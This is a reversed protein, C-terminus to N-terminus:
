IYTIISETDVKDKASSASLVADDVAIYISKSHNELFGTELLVSWVDDKVAALLVKVGISEYDKFIQKLTKVGVVDVFIIGTCDLIVTHVDTKDMDGSGNAAAKLSNSNDVTSLHDPSVTVELSGNGNQMVHTAASQCFAELSDYKKIRKRIKEPDVGTADYVLRLFIAANAYYLPSNYGIVRIGSDLQTKTYKTKEEYLGVESLRELQRAPERQTRLIVTYFSFLIGILIGFDVHLIVVSLFTVLWIMCDYVSVKWLHSLELVQLFMSRLAVVIIASLVCTPLSEFLPGIWLIVVLVLCASVLCAIQSKGGAGEQVSSRSLSAAFPFCSFFSSLLNGFGHALLEQNPDIEYQYRRALLAVLSVSQVFAVVAITFADSIYGTASHFSPLSPAPIGAPIHGVIKIGWLERLNCFHCSVTAIVVLILDIPIPFKIKKKFRQNIQVKVLYLVIISVLSIALEAINTKTINELLAKYTYVIQFVGPFRPIRLGLLSKVQSTFVHTAVGTTFGGILSDSMYTTVLGLRCMGLRVQILGTMFCVTAAIGIKKMIFIDSQQPNGSADPQTTMGTPLAMKIVRFSSNAESLGDSQLGSGDDGAFKVVVSGVMLSVVAMKGINVNRSTGLFFYVLVPFFSMYLGVVPPLEALMAYAMGQPLIMVGVTLGAIVDGVLSTKWNYSKLARFLPVMGYMFESLCEPSCNCSKQFQRMCKSKLSTQECKKLFEGRYSETRYLRHKTELYDTRRTLKNEMGCDLHDTIKVQFVDATM